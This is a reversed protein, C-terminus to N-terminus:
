ALMVDEIHIQAANGGRWDDVKIKGVIHLRQGNSQLLATGIPEEAARFAIGRATAGMSDAITVAVHGSGKIDAYRVSVDQLIFRPEPNGNGFPGAKEILEAFDRYISKLGVVRSVKLSPYQRAHIIDDALRQELFTKLPQLMQKQLSLGAAMAHGGGASLIHQRNAEAIAAGLDVGTISRGSGKGIDGDFGIVIAPCNYKEKLRGAVIGIVGSHWGQGSVIIVNEPADAYDCKVQAMAADLVDQEVQQREANLLHLQEAIESASALDQATMLRLATRAHGIRGAANIRPGISFGLHYASAAGKAGARVALAALGPYSRNVLTESSLEGFVKLGQAVLIRTLGTLPMVDCVLGLAVLDLWQILPPESKDVFYGQERLLRTLAVLAMFTVGAASLNTLGSIDDPRNPNVVAAAPPPPLTMQHHDLVVIEMGKQRLQDLLDHAMAGCDVTICLRAGKGALGQFAPLNPGYGETLRDPLHIEHEVDLYKFYRSLLAASTTGDVDYDGFIGIKEKATIAAAIAEIAPIMDMLILPDPMSKRLSPSLWESAQELSVGKQTLMEALTLEISLQQAIAEAQRHDVADMLWIKGAVSKRGELFPTPSLKTEPSLKATASM